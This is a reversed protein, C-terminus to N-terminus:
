DMRGLAEELVSTEVLLSLVIDSDPLDYFYGPHVVIDRTELLREAIGQGGTRSDM